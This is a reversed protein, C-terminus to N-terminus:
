MCEENVNRIKFLAYFELKIYNGSIYNKPLLQMLKKTSEFINNICLTELYVKKFVIRISELRFLFILACRHEWLLYKESIAVRCRVMNFACAGFYYVFIIRCM